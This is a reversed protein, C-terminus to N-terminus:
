TQNQPLKIATIHKTPLIDANRCLLECATKVETLITNKLAANAIFRPDKRIESLSTNMYKMASFITHDYIFFYEKIFNVCTNSFNALIKEQIIVARREKKKEAIQNIASIANLRDAKSTQFPIVEQKAIQITREMATPALVIDTIKLNGPVDTIVHEIPVKVVSTTVKPIAEVKEINTIAVSYDNVRKATALGHMRFGCGPCTISNQRFYVIENFKAGCFGCETNKTINHPNITIVWGKKYKKYILIEKLFLSKMDSKTYTIEDNFMEPYIGRNIKERLHRFLYIFIDKEKPSLNIPLLFDKNEEKFKKFKEM